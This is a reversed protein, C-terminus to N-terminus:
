FSALEALELWRTERDTITHQITSLEKSWEELEEPSGEGANIKEQLQTKRQELENLEKELSELEQKQKYSLKPKHQQNNNEEKKPKDQKKAPQVQKRSEAKKEARYQHYTGNYDVVKGHGEFVFIHNVLKDLFYRDHTVTIL